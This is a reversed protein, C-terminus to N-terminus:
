PALPGPRATLSNFRPLLGWHELCHTECRGCVKCAPNGCPEEVQVMRGHVDRRNRMVPADCRNTVNIKIRM